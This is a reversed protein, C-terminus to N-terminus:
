ALGHISDKRGFHELLPNEKEKLFLSVNARLRFLLKLVHGRSLWFVEAHYLFMEYEVGM